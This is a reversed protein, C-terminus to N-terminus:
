GQAPKAEHYFKIIIRLWILAIPVHLLHTIPNTLYKRLCSVSQNRFWSLDTSQNKSTRTRIVNVPQRGKSSKDREVVLTGSIVPVLTMRGAVQVLGGGVIVMVGLIVGAEVGIGVMVGVAVTVVEGVAVISGVSTDRSGVGVV